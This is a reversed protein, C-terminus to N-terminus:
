IAVEQRQEALLLSLATVVHGVCVLQDLREFAPVAFAVLRVHDLTPRVGRSSNSVSSATM